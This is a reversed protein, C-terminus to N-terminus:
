LNNLLQNIKSRKYYNSWLKSLIDAIKVLEDTTAGAALREDYYKETASIRNIFDRYIKEYRSGTQRSVGLVEAADQASMGSDRLAEYEKRRSEIIKRM